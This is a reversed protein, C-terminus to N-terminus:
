IEWIMNASKKPQEHHPASELDLCQTVWNLETDVGVQSGQGAHVDFDVLLVRKAGAAQAARVAVAANNFYCGSQAV